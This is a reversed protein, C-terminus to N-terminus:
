EERNRGYQRLYYWVAWVAGLFAVVGLTLLNFYREIFGIVKRGYLMILLAELGFRAGRSLISALIFSHLRLGLVGASVTFAKYPIPTFGAIMVAWFEYRELLVAIQGLREKSVFREILPRGGWMGLFYGIVAGIISGLTTIGAFLMGRDPDLLVLPLLMTDPPLPFFIAELVSVIFLNTPNVVGTLYRLWDLIAM